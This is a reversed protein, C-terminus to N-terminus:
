TPQIIWGVIIFLKRLMSQNSSLRDEKHKSFFSRSGLKLASIKATSACVSEILILAPVGLVLDLSLSLSRSNGM